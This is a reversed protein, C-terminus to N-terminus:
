HFYKEDLLRGLKEYKCFMKQYHATWDPRPEYRAAFGCGMAEQAEELTGHIGAAVAAFMGSGLAVAQLSEAVLIPRDMVDSLIQMVFSSKRAVGGIAIVRRIEMGEEMFREMIKRAGFATAEVLSRYFRPADTGLNIGAVVGQLSQDTWPTRRGNMWDLAVLNEEPPLGAAIEEIRPLLKKRIAKKQEGEELFEELPWLLIRKFWAYIDGFAAQGAELGVMGPLVSGDVQGCIGGVARDKMFDYPSVMIDCTSTGVVKCLDFPRIGGGVAGMHCDFASGGIVVGTSLGLKEAWEPCLFGARKEATETTEYLRARVGALLPDVATLFEESPLGGFEEHWAAKHGAACRSRYMSEPRTNGTLVAPIWDCHEVWSYADRRLEEEERLLHLIKAWLWESSYVGGTYRTYNEFAGGEILANIEAAEKIATHDKWLVFMAHPNDKWKERFALPTGERDVACLTTGTTDVAIGRVYEASGDAQGLVDKVTYELGELYDGPHQRFQNKGPDCYQGEMWRPYYFVSEGLERGDACDLLLARVSDSGYDIGIVYNKEM